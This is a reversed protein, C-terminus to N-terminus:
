IKGKEIEEKVTRYILAEDSEQDNIGTRELMEDLEKSSMSQFFRKIEKLRQKRPKM